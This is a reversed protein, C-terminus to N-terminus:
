KGTSASMVGTTREKQRREKKGTVSARGRRQPFSKGKRTRTDRRRIKRDSQVLERRTEEPNSM